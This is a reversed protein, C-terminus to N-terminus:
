RPVQGEAAQGSHGACSHENHRRSFSDGWPRTAKRNVGRYPRGAGGGEQRWNRRTMPCGTLRLSPDPDRRACDNKDVTGREGDHTDTSGEDLRHLGAPVVAQVLRGLSERDPAGPAGRQRPDETAAGAGPRGQRLFIPAQHRPSSAHISRHQESPVSGNRSRAGAPTPAARSGWRARRATTPHRTRTREEAWCTSPPEVNAATARRGFRRM